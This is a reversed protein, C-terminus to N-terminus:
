NNYEPSHLLIAWVPYINYVFGNKQLIFPIHEGEDIIQFRSVFLSLSIIIIYKNPEPQINSLM